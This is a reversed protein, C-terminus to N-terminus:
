AQSSTKWGEDGDGVIKRHERHGPRHKYTGGVAQGWSKWRGIGWDPIRSGERGAPEAEAIERPPSHAAKGVPIQTGRPYSNRLSKGARFGWGAGARGPRLFPNLSHHNNSM